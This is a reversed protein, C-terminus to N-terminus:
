NSKLLGREIQDGHMQILRRVLRREGVKIWIDRESWSPEPVREPYQQNLFEILENSIFPTKM